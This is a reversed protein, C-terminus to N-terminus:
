ITTIFKLCLLILILSTQFIEFWLFIQVVVDILIQPNKWSNCYCFEPYATITRATANNRLIM